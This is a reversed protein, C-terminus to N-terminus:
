DTLWAITSTIIGILVSAIVATGWMPIQYPNIIFWTTEYGTFYFGKISFQPVFYAVLYLMGANILVGFLGLTVLEIPLTLLKIIPKVFINAIALIISILALYQIGGTYDIGPLFYSVIAIAVMNLLVVFLIRKM